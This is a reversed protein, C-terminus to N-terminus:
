KDLLTEYIEFKGRVYYKTQQERRHKLDATTSVGKEAIKRLLVERVDYMINEKAKPAYDNVFLQSINVM